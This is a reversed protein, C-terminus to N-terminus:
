IADFVLLSLGTAAAASAGLIALRITWRRLAAGPKALYLVGAVGTTISVLTELAQMAFGVGLAQTMGIGRSALAVAVAGSGVGISGPTVPFASAVDLAPLILLAALVPHPIGLAASVAVTAAVRAVVMGATWALVTALARPSRELAALGDLVHAIRPHRRLRGSFTAAVALAAVIGLLVFVPWLPMAGSAFAVVLLAALMLSRAAALAAYVGGATWIRGPADIAKSCLAIKIADGLKAPAFANVMSGVALRAAAQKPCIRGGAAALAARWSGVTCVFAGVFGAAGLLLWRPDAGRLSEFASAVHAGLLQPSLSVVALLALMALSLALNRRSITM